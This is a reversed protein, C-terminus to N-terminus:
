AAPVAEIGHGHRPRPSWMAGAAIEEPLPKEEGSIQYIERIAAATLTAPAGDFVVRGKAMGVVRNCYERAIELSHLNCLVTIGDERNITQIFDMVHQANRPDLSAVPEDALLIAPEQM